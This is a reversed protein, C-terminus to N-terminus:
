ERHSDLRRGLPVPVALHQQAAAHGGGRDRQQGDLHRVRAVLDGRDGGLEAAGAPPAHDEDGRALVRPSHSREPLGRAFPPEFGDHHRGTVVREVRVAPPGVGLVALSHKRVFESLSILQARLPVPLRNADSMLDEALTAWLRQNDSVARALVAFSAADTEDLAKLRATVQAFLAYETGRETRVPNADYGSRAPSTPLM